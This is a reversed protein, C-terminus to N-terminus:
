LVKVWIKLLSIWNAIFPLFLWFQVLEGLFFELEIQFILEGIVGKDELFVHFKDGGFYTGKLLDVLYPRIFEFFVM